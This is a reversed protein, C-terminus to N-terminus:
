NANLIVVNSRPRRAPLCMLMSRSSLLSHLQSDVNLQRIEAMQLSVHKIFCREKGVSLLYRSNFNTQLVARKFLMSTQTNGQQLAKAIKSDFMFKRHKMKRPFEPSGLAAANGKKLRFGNRDSQVAAFRPWPSLFHAFM